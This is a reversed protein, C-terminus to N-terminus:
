RVNKSVPGDFGHRAPIGNSMRRTKENPIASSAEDHAWPAAVKSITGAGGLVPVGALARVRV